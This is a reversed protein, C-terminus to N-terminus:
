VEGMNIIILACEGEGTKLYGCDSQAINSLGRCMGYDIKDPYAYKFGKSDLIHLTGGFPLVSFTKGKIGNLEILGGDAFIVSRETVLRARAGHEKAYYLLHLNGLFHDERGGGGGYVDIDDFGAAILKRMAIEGDTYDKESPYIKSPPPDPIYPLSDFDGVNEDIRVKGKAWEYAGDCCMVYANSCDINAEYPQGNLLLVARKM